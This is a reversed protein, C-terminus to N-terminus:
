IEEEEMRKGGSKRIEDYDCLLLLLLLSLLSLLTKKNSKKV